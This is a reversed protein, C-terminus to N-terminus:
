LWQHFPLYGPTGQTFMLAVFVLCSWCFWGVPFRSSPLEWHTQVNYEVLLGLMYQFLIFLLALFRSQFVLLLFCCCVLVSYSHSLFILLVDSPFMLRLLVWVFTHVSVRCVPFCGDWCFISVLFQNAGSWFVWSSFHYIFFCLVIFFFFCLVTMLCWDIALLLMLRIKDYVMKWFPYSRKAVFFLIM